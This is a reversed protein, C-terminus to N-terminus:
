MKKKMITVKINPIYNSPVPNPDSTYTYDSNVVIDSVKGVDLSNTDIDMTTSVLKEGEISNWECTLHTLPNKQSGGFIWPNTAIANWSVPLCSNKLIPPATKSNCTIFFASNTQNCITVGNDAANAISSSFATIAISLTYFLRKM